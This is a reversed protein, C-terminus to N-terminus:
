GTPDGRARLRAEPTHDASGTLECQALAEVRASFESIPSPCTMTAHSGLAASCQTGGVVGTRSYNEHLASCTLPSSLDLSFWKHAAHKSHGAEGLSWRDTSQESQTLSVLEFEETTKILHIDWM